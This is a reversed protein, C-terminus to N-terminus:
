SLFRKKESEKPILCYGKNILHRRKAIFQYVSNTLGLPLFRFLRVMRYPFKLYRAIEFVAASEAYLQGKSFFYVTSLDLKQNKEDFFTQAFSSQLAAFHIVADRERNLILQVTRNCFGCDGDFFVIECQELNM